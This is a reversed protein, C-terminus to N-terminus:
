HCSGAGADGIGATSVFEWQYSNTQLTLKLVGFVDSLRAESNAHINVVHYPTAGGTGAVFERIGGAPDPRGDADQPAFREYDHDHGALVIEAGADYLIGWFDRMDSSDGNPGSSFLPHHWYAITCKSRSSALDARLWQGQASNSRASLNSNLAVAHWAGLEFSYYGLGAPGANFGFYEFYPAAGPSHYEHNGPVPRTRGKHRGWSPDYCDRYERATGSFYANDGLTFVTGGINDLLRATIEPGPSGCM